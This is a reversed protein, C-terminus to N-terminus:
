EAGEAPGQGGAEKRDHASDVSGHIPFRNARKPNFIHVAIRKANPVEGVNKTLDHREPFAVSPDYWRVVEVLGLVYHPLAVRLVPLYLWHLQWWADATHQYKVEYIIGTKQEHDLLLADPQCWRKGRKDCFELWPGARHELGPRGLAFLALYEQVEREYRVGVAYRGRARSRRIFPPQAPLFRASRVDVAAIFRSPPPHNELDM